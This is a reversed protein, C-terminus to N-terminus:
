KIKPVRSIGLYTTFGYAAAFICSLVVYKTPVDIFYTPNYSPSAEDVFIQIQLKSMLNQLFDFQYHWGDSIMVALVSALASCIITVIGFKQNEQMIKEKNSKKIIYTALVAIFLLLVGLHFNNRTRVVAQEVEGRALEIEHRLAEAEVRAKKAMEAQYFEANIRQTEAHQRAINAEIQQLIAQNTEIERLMDLSSQQAAASTSVCVMMTVFIIQSLKKM